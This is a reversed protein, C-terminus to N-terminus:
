RTPAPLVQSRLLSTLPVVLSVSVRTGEVAKDKVAQAGEATHRGLQAVDQGLDTAKIQEAKGAISAKASDAM